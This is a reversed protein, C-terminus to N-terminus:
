GNCWGARVMYIRRSRNELYMVRAIIEGSSKEVSEMIDPGDERQYTTYNLLHDAWEDVTCEHWLM